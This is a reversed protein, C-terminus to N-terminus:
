IYCGGYLKTLKFYYNAMYMFIDAVEVCLLVSSNLRVYTGRKHMVRLTYM